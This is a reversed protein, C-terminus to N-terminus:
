FARKTRSIKLDKYNKGDKGCKGTEFPCISISYNIINHITKCLDSSAIKATVSFGSQIVSDNIKTLYYM